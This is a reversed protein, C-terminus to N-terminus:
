KLGLIHHASMPTGGSHNFGWPWVDRSREELCGFNKLIKLLAESKASKAL